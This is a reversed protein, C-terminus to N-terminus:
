SPSNPMQDILGLHDLLKLSPSIARRGIHHDLRFSTFSIAAATASGSRDGRVGPLVSM